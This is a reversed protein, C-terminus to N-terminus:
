GSPYLADYSIGESAYKQSLVGYIEERDEVLRIQTGAATTWNEATGNELSLIITENEVYDAGIGSDEYHGIRVIFYSGFREKMFTENGYLYKSAFEGVSSDLDATAPLCLGCALMISVLLAFKRM